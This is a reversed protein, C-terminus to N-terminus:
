DNQRSIFIGNEDVLTKIYIDWAEDDTLSNNFSKITRIIAQRDNNDVPHKHMIVGGWDFIVIKEM